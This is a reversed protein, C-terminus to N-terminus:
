WCCTQYQIKLNKNKASDNGIADAPKKNVAANTTSLATNTYSSNITMDINKYKTSHCKLISVPLKIPNDTMDIQKRNQKVPKHVQGIKNAM